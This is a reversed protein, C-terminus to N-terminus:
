GSNRPDCTDNDCKIKDVFMNRRNISNYIKYCRPIRYIFPEYNFKIDNRKNVPILSFFSIYFCIYEIYLADFSDRSKKAGGFTFDNLRYKLILEASFSRADHRINNESFTCQTAEKVDLRIEHHFEM